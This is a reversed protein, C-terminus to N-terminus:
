KNYFILNLPIDCYLVLSEEGPNRQGLGANSLHYFHVGLRRLDEFQWGLEVGSRFELPYGLGKTSGNWFYGAAFGPTIVLHEFFLLDFNIGAYLYGAGQINSMVGVLPLFELFSFPSGLARVRFKCEMEFEATRKYPRLFNYCGGAVSFWHSSPVAQALSAIVLASSLLLAPLSM